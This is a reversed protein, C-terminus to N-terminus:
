SSPYIWGQLRGDAADYNIAGDQPTVKSGPIARMLGDIIVRDNAELGSRIM